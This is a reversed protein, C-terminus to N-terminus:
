RGEGRLDVGVSHCADPVQAHSGELQVASADEEAIDELDDFRSDFWERLDSIRTEVVDLEERLTRVTEGADDTKDSTRLRQNIDDRRETLQQLAGHITHREDIQAPPIDDLCSPPAGATAPCQYRLGIYFGITQLLNTRTHCYTYEHIHDVREPDPIIM